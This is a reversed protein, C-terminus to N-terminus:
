KRRIVRSERARCDMHTVVSPECPCTTASHAIPPSRLAGRGSSMASAPRPRWGGSCTAACSRNHCHQPWGRNTSTSLQSRGLRLRCDVEVKLEIRYGTKSSNADICICLFSIFGFPGSDGIIIIKFLNDYDKKAMSFFERPKNM